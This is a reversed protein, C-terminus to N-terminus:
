GRLESILLTALKKIVSNTYSKQAKQPLMKRIAIYGSSLIYTEHCIAYYCYLKNGSERVPTAYGTIAVGWDSNFLMCVHSAMEEAVKQSICNCSKAHIPEVGLHKYKQGINYMTSGGQFFREADKISSILVQLSGAEAVAITQKTTLLRERVLKLQKVM